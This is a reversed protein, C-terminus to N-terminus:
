QAGERNRYNHSECLSQYLAQAQEENQVGFIPQDNEMREKVIEALIDGAFPEHHDCALIKKADESGWNQAIFSQNRFDAGIIDRFVYYNAMSRWPNGIKGTVDLMVNTQPLQEPLRSVAERTSAEFLGRYWHLNHLWTMHSLPEPDAHTNGLCLDQLATCGLLPSYDDLKLNFLELYILEKLGAVPSIDTISSDALILYKVHPMTELWTCDTINKMHGIDVAVMETCYRLKQISENTISLDDATYFWIADTRISFRGIQVTWVISIDPYARNLADLAEDDAGTDSLIVKQLNPFLPLAAEVEELSVGSLSLETSDAPYTQDGFCVDQSERAWAVGNLPLLVLLAAAACFAALPRKWNGKM